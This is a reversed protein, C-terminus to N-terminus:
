FFFCSNNETHTLAQMYTRANHVHRPDQPGILNHGRVNFNSVPKHTVIYTNPISHLGQALAPLTRVLRAMEPQSYFIHVLLVNMTQYIRLLNDEWFVHNIGQKTTHQMLCM